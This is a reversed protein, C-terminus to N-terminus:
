MNIDNPTVLICGNRVGQHSEKKAISDAQSATASITSLVSTDASQKAFFFLLPGGSDVAVIGLVLRNFCGL